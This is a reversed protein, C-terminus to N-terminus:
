VKEQYQSSWSIHIPLHRIHYLYFLHRTVYIDGSGLAEAVSGLCPRRLNKSFSEQVPNLMMKVAKESTIPKLIM